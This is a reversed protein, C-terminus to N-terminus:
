ATRSRVLASTGSQNDSSGGPGVDPHTKEERGPPDGQRRVRAHSFCAVSEAAPSGRPCSRPVVVCASSCVTLSPRGTAQRGWPHSEGGSRALRAFFFRRLTGTRSPASSSGRKTWNELSFHGRPAPATCWISCPLVLVSCGTLTAGGRHAIPPSSSRDADLDARFLRAAPGLPAVGPLRRDFRRRHVILPYPSSSAM